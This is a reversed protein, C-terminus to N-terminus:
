KVVEDNDYQMTGALEELQIVVSNRGIVYWSYAAICEREPQGSESGQLWLSDRFEEYTLHLLVIEDAIGSTQSM